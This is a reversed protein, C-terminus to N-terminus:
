SPVGNRKSPATQRSIESTVHEIVRQLEHMTLPRLQEMTVGANAVLWRCIETTTTVAELDMQAGVTFTTLDITLKLPSAEVAPVNRGKTM